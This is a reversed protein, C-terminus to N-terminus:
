IYNVMQEVGFIVVNDYQGFNTKWLDQRSFTANSSLGMTLSKFKSYMVLWPNLEIGHASYGNQAALHVIRGDGSGAFFIILSLNWFHFEFSYFFQKLYQFACQWYGFDAKKGVPFELIERDDAKALLFLQCKDLLRIDDSNCIQSNRNSFFQHGRFEQKM